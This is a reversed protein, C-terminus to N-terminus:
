SSLAASTVARRQSIGGEKGECGQKEQVLSSSSPFCHQFSAPQCAGTSHYFGAQQKQLAKKGKRKAQSTKVLACINRQAEEL